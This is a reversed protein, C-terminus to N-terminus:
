VQPALLGAQDFAARECGLAIAYLAGSMLCYKRKHVDGTAGRVGTRYLCALCVVLWAVANVLLSHRVPSTLNQSTCAVLTLIPLLGPKIRNFVHEQLKFSPRM